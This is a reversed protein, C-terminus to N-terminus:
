CKFHNRILIQFQFSVNVHPNFHDQAIDLAFAKFLGRQARGIFKITKVVSAFRKIGSSSEDKKPKLTAMIEKKFSVTEEETM